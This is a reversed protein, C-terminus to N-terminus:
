ILAGKSDLTYGDVVTDSEMAGSTNFYYWNNDIYQWGTLMAGILAKDSGNYLYYWNKDTDQFWGTLMVGTNTDCFYWAGNVRNWGKAKTGDALILFWNGNSDQMWGPKTASKTDGENSDMTKTESNNSPYVIIPTNNTSNSSVADSNHSSNRKRAVYRQISYTTGNILGTIETGNLYDCDSKKLSLTGDAKVYYTLVNTRVIYKHKSALGTVKSDAAIGLSGKSLIIASSSSNTNSTDNLIKGITDKFSANDFKASVGIYKNADSSTLTYTNGTGIEDNFDSNSNNLRYWKYSVAASITVHNGSDDLLQAILTDGVAPTGEIRVASPTTVPSIISSNVTLKAASSSVPSGTAGNVVVQYKYGNMETTANNITLTDTTAGSYTGDDTVNVFGNGTSVMWQYNLGTGAASVHFSTTGGSNITKDSPDQIISPPIDVLTVTITATGSQNLDVTSTATITYNGPAADAVVSVLGVSNVTVKHTTDSSSWNVTQAAGNTVSVNASLQTTHGQVVSSTAPTISVSNIPSPDTTVDFASVSFNDNMVLRFKYHTDATLGTINASTASPDLSNVATTWTNGDDESKEIKLATAGDIAPFSVAVSTSTKSFLTLAFPIITSGTGGLAAALNENGLYIKANPNISTFASDGISTVSNPIAISTLGACHFFTYPEISTVSNPIAISTLRTCYYFTSNRISTISNPITISVLNDCYSFAGWGISTVSNPITISVLNHCLQFAYDGISTVTNPITVSTIQIHNADSGPLCNFAGGEIATVNKDNIKSPIIINQDTGVYNIIKYGSNGDTDFFFGAATADDETAYTVDTAFVPTPNIIPMIAAVTTAIIAAVVLKKSKM